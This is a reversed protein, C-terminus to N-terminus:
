AWGAPWPPRGERAFALHWGAGAWGVFFSAFSLWPQGCMAEDNTSCHWVRALETSDAPRQEAMRRLQRLSQHAANQMPRVFHWNAFLPLVIERCRNRRKTGSLAACVATRFLEDTHSHLWRSPFREHCCAWGFVCDLCSPKRKCLCHHGDFAGPFQSAKRSVTKQLTM